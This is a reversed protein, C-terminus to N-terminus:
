TVEMVSSSHLGGAVTGSVPVPSFTMPLSSSNMCNVQSGCNWLSHSKQCQKCTMYTESYSVWLWLNQCKPDDFFFRKRQLFKAIDLQCYYYMQQKQLWDASDSFSISGLLVEIRVVMLHWSSGVLVVMVASTSSFSCYFWSSLKRYSRTIHLLLGYLQLFHWDFQDVLSSIM